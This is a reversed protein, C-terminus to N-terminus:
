DIIKEFFEKVLKDKKENFVKKSELKQEEYFEEIEKKKYDAEKLIDDYIKNSDDKTKSDYNKNLELSVKNVNDKENKLIVDTDNRLKTTEDDISYISKLAEKNTKINPDNKQLHIILSPISEYNNKLIFRGDKSVEGLRYNFYNLNTIKNINIEENELAQLNNIYEELKKNREELEKKKEINDELMKLLNKLKEDNIRKGNDSDELNLFEKIDELNKIFTSDIKEFSDLENFDETKDINEESAKISFERNQVQRFADVQDFEDINILDELFDDLNELKAMINVLHMKEVAM